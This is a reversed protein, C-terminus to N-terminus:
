DWLSMIDGFLSQVNVDQKCTLHVDRGKKKFTFELDTYRNLVYGFKLLEKERKPRHDVEEEFEEWDEDPIIVLDKSM